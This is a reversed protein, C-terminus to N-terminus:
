GSNSVCQGPNLMLRITSIDAIHKIQRFNSNSNPKEESHETM